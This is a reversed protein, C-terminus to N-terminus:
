HAFRKVNEVRFVLLYYGCLERTSHEITLYFRQCLYKWDFFLVINHAHDRVVYPIFCVLAYFIYIFNIFNLEEVTCTAGFIVIDDVNFM